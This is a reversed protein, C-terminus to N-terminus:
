NLVLPIYVGRTVIVTSILIRKHGSTFSRIAEERQAQLRQSHLSAVAFQNNELFEHLM